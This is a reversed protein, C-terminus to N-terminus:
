ALVARVLAMALFLGGIALVVSAVVYGLALHWVGREVLLAVDLSFTSFTTFAGMIGTVILARVELPPSWALAMTEALLGMIFSGLVNVVLIGWPFHGGTMHMVWAAVYHRAVAGMAGGAAIAAVLKWHM